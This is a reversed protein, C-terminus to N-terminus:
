QDARCHPLTPYDGRDATSRKIAGEEATQAHTKEEGDQDGHTQAARHRVGM